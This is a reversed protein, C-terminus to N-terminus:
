GGAASREKVPGSIPDSDCLDQREIPAAFPVTGQAPSQKPEGAGQATPPIRTAAGASNQAQELDGYAVDIAPPAANIRRASEREEIEQSHLFLRRFLRDTKANHPTGQVLIAVRASRLLRTQEPSRIVGDDPHGLKGSADALKVLADLMHPGYFFGFLKWYVQPEDITFGDYVAPGIAHQVIFSRAHLRRRADYFLKEYAVVVSVPIGCKLSIEKPLAGTLIRAEL